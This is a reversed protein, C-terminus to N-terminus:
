VDAGYKELLELLVAVRAKENVGCDKLDYGLIYEPEITNNSFVKVRTGNDLEIIVENIAAREIELATEETLVTGAECVLEGTIPSIADEALKRGAIRSSIAM